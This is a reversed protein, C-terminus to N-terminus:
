ESLDVEAYVLAGQRDTCNCYISGPSKRQDVWACDYCTDYFAGQGDDIPLLQGNDNRYCRNLFAGAAVVSREPDTANECNAYLFLARQDGDRDYDPGM